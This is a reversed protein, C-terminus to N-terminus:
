DELTMTVLLWISPTDDATDRLGYEDIAAQAAARRDDESAFAGALVERWGDAYAIYNGGGTEFLEPLRTRRVSGDPFALAPVGGDLTLDPGPVQENDVDDDSV